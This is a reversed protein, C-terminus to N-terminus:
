SDGNKGDGGIGMAALAFTVFGLGIMLAGFSAFFFAFRLVFAFVSAFVLALFLFLLLGSELCFGTDYSV